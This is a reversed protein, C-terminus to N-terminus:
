QTIVEGHESKESAVIELQLAAIWFALNSRFERPSARISHAKIIAAEIIADFKENATM